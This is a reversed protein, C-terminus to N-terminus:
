IITSFGAKILSLVMSFKPSIYSPINIILILTQSLKNKFIVHPPICVGVSIFNLVINACARAFSFVLESCSPQM